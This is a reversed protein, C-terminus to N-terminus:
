MFPLSRTGSTATFPTVDLMGLYKRALANLEFTRSAGSVSMVDTHKM